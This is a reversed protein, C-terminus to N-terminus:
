QGFHPIEVMEVAGGLMFTGPSVRRLVLAETKYYDSWGGDPEQALYSVPYCTASAGASLDIVCYLAEDMECFVNFAVNTSNLNIGQRDFDWVISHIGETLNEAGSLAETSAKYSMNAVKDIATVKLTAILGNTLAYGAIDGSVKYSIDVKGNWPYRQQATVSTITPTAAFASGILALLGLVLVKVKM